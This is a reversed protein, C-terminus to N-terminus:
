SALGLASKVAPLGPKGDFTTVGALWPELAAPNARMWQEVAKKPDMKDNLIMVMMDNEMPISFVMQKLLTGLNPCAGTLGSRTLTRVTASGRNPGFYEEGGDLYGMPLKVNMPHPAWGLFVAWEKRRATRDVSALMAAESSEVLKWGGLGYANDAIMKQIKANASSGPEISYITSNFKDAHKNLDEFTKVGADAAAKNVALTTTAGELNVTAIDIQGGDIYKRTMEEQAPMWNGLFADLNKSKLGEISVAVSLSVVKPEYGLASLIVAATTTTSTIDTWGPDSMRVPKCEAPEAASVAMSWLSVGCLAIGAATMMRATKFPM